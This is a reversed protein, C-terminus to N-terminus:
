QEAKTATKQTELGDIAKKLRFDATSFEGNFTQEFIEKVKPALEKPTAFNEYVSFYKRYLKSYNNKTTKYKKTKKFKNLLYGKENNETAMYLALSQEESGVGLRDYCLGGGGFISFHEEFPKNFMNEEFGIEATNIGLGKFFSYLRACKSCHGCWIRTKGEETDSFCSIQLKGLEPYRAHLIKLLGIEQLQGVISGVEIKRGTMMRAIVKLQKTWDSTQDFAVCSKFGQKDYTYENCSYENGFLIYDADYYKVFPMVSLIYTIFQAGAGWNNVEEGLDCYRLKGPENLMDHVTLGYEEKLVQIIKEKHKAEPHTPDENIYVPIVDIGLELCLALTLLSEKGATFLIIARTKKNNWLIRKKRNLPIRPDPEAFVFESNFFLKFYDTTKRNDIVATSPIDYMTSEFAFTQFCPAATNYVAGKMKNSAPLHCTQTFTINDKLIEKKIQPYNKWIQEPYEIHYKKNNVTLLIGKNTLESNIAIFDEKEIKQGNVLM